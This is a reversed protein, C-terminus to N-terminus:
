AEGGLLAPLLAQFQIHRQTNYSSHSTSGGARVGVAKPKFGLYGFARPASYDGNGMGGLNMNGGTFSGGGGVTWRDSIRRDAGGAGTCIDSHGGRAQATRDYNARQCATEGWWRVETVDEAQRAQLQNRVLDSVTETDQVGTELISAHLQGGIQELASGLASDDLATLERAVFAGDGTAAIKGRDIAAAPGATGPGSVTRLPVNLNVLTVFLGDRDQKLMPFVGADGTTVNSSSMSLGNAAALALFSASRAS